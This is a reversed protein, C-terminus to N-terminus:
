MKFMYLIETQYMHLIYHIVESASNPNFVDDVLMIM